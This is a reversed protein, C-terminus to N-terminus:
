ADSEDKPPLAASWALLLSVIAAAGVDFCWDLVSANRYPLLSQLSEDFLGLLAIIFITMLSRLLPAAQLAQHALLAMFGYFLTHLLKDGYRDSLAQAEGPLSGITLMVVFLCVLAALWAPRWRLPLLPRVSLDDTAGSEDRPLLRQEIRM